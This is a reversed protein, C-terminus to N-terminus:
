PYGAAHFHNEIGEAPNLLTQLLQENVGPSKTDFAPSAKGLDVLIHRLLFQRHRPSLCVRCERNVVSTSHFM